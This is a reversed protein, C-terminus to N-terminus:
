NIELLEVDNCPTTVRADSLCLKCHGCDGAVYTGNRWLAKAEGKLLMRGGSVRESKFGAVVCVRGQELEMETGDISTASQKRWQQWVFWSRPETFFIIKREKKENPIERRILASLPQKVHHYNLLVNTSNWARMIAATM